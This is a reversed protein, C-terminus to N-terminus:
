RNNEDNFEELALDMDKLKISNSELRKLISRFIMWCEREYLKKEMEIGAQKEDYHLQNTERKLREIELQLKERNLKWNGIKEIAQIIVWLAGTSVAVSSLLLEVTLPSEKIIKFARLRHQIKLPRGHRLWFRQSFQYNHYDEAYLLLSFDHLLEFDYFLSTVDLFYPKKEDKFVLKMKINHNTDM